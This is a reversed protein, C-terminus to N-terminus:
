EDEHKNWLPPAIIVPAVVCLSWGGLSDPKSSSTTGDADAEPEFEDADKIETAGPFAFLCPSSPCPKVEDAEDKGSALLLLTLVLVDEDEDPEVLLLALLLPAPPPVVEVPAPPPEAFEM